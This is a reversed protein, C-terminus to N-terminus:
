KAEKFHADFEQAIREDSERLARKLEAAIRKRGKKLERASTRWVKVVEKHGNVLANRETRATARLAERADIQQKAAKSIEPSIARHHRVRNRTTCKTCLTQRERKEGNCSPCV